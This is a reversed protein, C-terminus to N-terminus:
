HRAVYARCTHYLGHRHSATLLPGAGGGWCPSPPLRTTDLSTSPYSLDRGAAAPTTTNATDIGLIGDSMVMWVFVCPVCACQGDLAYCLLSGM